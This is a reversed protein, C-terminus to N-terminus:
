GRKATIVRDRGALDQRLTMDMWGTAELLASVLAAQDYGIELALTGGPALFGGAERVIIRYAALGDEGGSLALAPDFNAVEPPLAAMAKADIYPPNSVILDYSGSIAGIWDSKILTLRDAVKHARANRRTMDLAADSIDSAVGRSDAREALLTIIIAGSGAGLDLLRPAPTERVAELAAEILTETDARPSLVDRSIAFRRGYFEAYGLLSDMPEGALRRGALAELRALANPNLVTEGAILEAHSIDGAAMVLWRAELAPSPLGAERFVQTLERKALNPDPSTVRRVSGQM